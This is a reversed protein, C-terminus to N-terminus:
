QEAPVQQHVGDIDICVQLQVFAGCGPVSFWLAFACLNGLRLAHVRIHSSVAKAGREEGSM